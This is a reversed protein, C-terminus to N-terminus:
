AGAEAAIAEPLEGLENRRERAAEALARQDDLV